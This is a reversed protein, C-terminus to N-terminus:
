DLLMVVSPTGLQQVTDATGRLEVVVALRPTSHSTPLPCSVLPVSPAALLEERRSPSLCQDIPTVTQM